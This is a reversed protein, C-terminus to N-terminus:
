KPKSTMNARYSFQSVNELNPHSVDQIFHVSTELQWDTPIHALENRM